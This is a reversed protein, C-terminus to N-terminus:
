LSLLMTLCTFCQSSKVLLEYSCFCTTIGVEFVEATSDNSLKPPRMIVLGDGTSVSDADEPTRSRSDDDVVQIGLEQDEESNSATSGDVDKEVTSTKM